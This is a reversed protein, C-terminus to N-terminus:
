AFPPSSQTTHEFNCPLNFCHRLKRVERVPNPFHMPIFTNTMVVTVYVWIIFHLPISTDFRGLNNM